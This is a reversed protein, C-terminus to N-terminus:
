ICDGRVNSTLKTDPQCKAVTIKIDDNINDKSNDNNNGNQESHMCFVIHLFILIKLENKNIWQNIPDPRLTNCEHVPM